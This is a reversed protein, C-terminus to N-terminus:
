RGDSQFRGDHFSVFGSTNNREVLDTATCLWFQIGFLIIMLPNATNTTGTKVACPLFSPHTLLNYFTHTLLSQYKPTNNNRKKKTIILAPIYPATRIIPFKQSYRLSPSFLVSWGVDSGSEMLAREEAWEDSKAVDMSESADYVTM